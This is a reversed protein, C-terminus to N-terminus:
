GCIVRNLAQLVIQEAIAKKVGTVVSTWSGDKNIEIQHDGETITQGPMPTVRVNAAGAEKIAVTAKSVDVAM